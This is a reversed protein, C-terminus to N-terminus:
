CQKGSDETARVTGATNEIKNFSRKQSFEFGVREALIKNINICKVSPSVDM